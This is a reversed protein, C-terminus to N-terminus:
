LCCEPIGNRCKFFRHINLPLKDKWRNAPKIKHRNWMSHAASLMFHTVLMYDQNCRSAMVKHQWASLHCSPSLSSIQSFLHCQVRHVQTELCSSRVLVLHRCIFQFDKEGAALAILGWFKIWFNQKHPYTCTFNQTILKQPRHYITLFVYVLCFYMKPHATRGLM